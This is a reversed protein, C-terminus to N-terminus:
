VLKVRSSDGVSSNPRPGVLLDIRGHRCLVRKIALFDNVAISATASQVVNAAVHSAPHHPYDESVTRRQCGRSQCPPPYDESVTRRQCGRSQCPPTTKESQVVNAAVHSAPHHPYDESVTRRQCGRSQCPPPPLRRQHFSM